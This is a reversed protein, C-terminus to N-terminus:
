DAASEVRDRVVADGPALPNLFDPTSSALLWAVVWDALFRLERRGGLRAKYSKGIQYQVVSVSRCTGLSM